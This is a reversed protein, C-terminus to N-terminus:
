RSQRGYRFDVSILDDSVALMECCELTPALSALLKGSVGADEDLFVERDPRLYLTVIQQDVVSVVSNALGSLRTSARRRCVM